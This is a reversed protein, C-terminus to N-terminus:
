PTIIMAFSRMGEWPPKHSESVGSPTEVVIASDQYGYSFRANELVYKGVFVSTMQRESPVRSHLITTITGNLLIFRGQVQPPRLVAGDVHWEELEYVGFILGHINTQIDAASSSAAVLVMAVLASMTGSLRANMAHGNDFGDAPQRQRGAELWNKRQWNRRRPCRM